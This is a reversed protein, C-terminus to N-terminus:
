LYSLSQSNWSCLPHSSAGHSHLAQDLVQRTKTSLATLISGARRPADPTNPTGLDEGPAREHALSGQQTPFSHNIHVCYTAQSGPADLAGRGGFSGIVLGARSGLARLSQSRLDRVPSSLSWSSGSISAEQKPGNVLRLLNAGAVPLDGDRSPHPSAPPEHRPRPLPAPQHTPINVDMVIKGSIGGALATQQVGAKQWFGEM